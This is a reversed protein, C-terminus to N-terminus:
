IRGALVAIAIAQAINIIDAADQRTFGGRHFVVLSDSISKLAALYRRDEIQSSLISEKHELRARTLEYLNRERTVILDALFLYRISSLITAIDNVALNYDKITKNWKDKSSSNESLLKSFARADFSLEMLESAITKGGKIGLADIRDKIDSLLQNALQVGGYMDEFLESRSSLQALKSEAAAKEIEAFELGLKLIIITSGPADPIGFDDLDKKSKPLRDELIKKIQKTVTKGEADIFEIEKDGIKKLIDDASQKNETQNQTGTENSDSLLESIGKKLIAISANWNTVNAKASNIAKQAEEIAEEANGLVKSVIKKEILYENVEKLLESQTAKIEQITKEQYVKTLDELKILPLKNILAEERNVILDVLVRDEETSFKELNDLMAKYMAPANEAYNNLENQVKEAATLSEPSHIHSPMLSCGSGTFLIFLFIINILKFPTILRCAQSYSM